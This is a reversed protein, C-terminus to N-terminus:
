VAITQRSVTYSTNSSISTAYLRFTNNALHVNSTFSAIPTGNTALRAYETMYTETTGGHTVLIETTQFNTANNDKVSIVYKASRYDTSSFHDIAVASTGNATSSNVALQLNNSIGVFLVNSGISGNVFAKGNTVEGTSNATVTYLFANAIENTRDIWDQFSDSITNVKAIIRSM